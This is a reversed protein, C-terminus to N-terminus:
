PAAPGGADAYFRMGDFEVTGKQPLGQVIIMMKDIRGGNPMKQTHQWESAESKFNTQDLRFSVTTPQKAPAVAAPPTEHMKWDSAAGFAVSVQLTAATPNVVTLDMRKAKSLDMNQLLMIALKKDEGGECVVEVLRGRGQVSKVELKGPRSWSTDVAWGSLAEVGDATPPLEVSWLAPATVIRFPVAQAYRVVTEKGVTMTGTLIVNQTFGAPLRGARLIVTGENKDKPITGGRVTFGKPPADAGLKVQGTVGEARAAKVVVEAEGNQQIEVVKDPEVETSLTFASPKLVALLFEDTPVRHRPSFAQMVDEAPTAQHTVTQGAIEATGRVSPTLIGPQLDPPATLTFRVEGEKAPIVAGRTVFGKPLGDLSLKIEGDFGDTRVVDGILVATDGPAICPNDPLVRLTFDHRPAAISLRYAYAEGGKGQIDCLKVCYEGDAPFTHLLYSDAHHTITQRSGDITDDNRALETGKADFVAIVSDLPSELRRACVDIVLTEKAKAPFVFCDVDGPKGIRGNIVTGPKVKNAKEPSDNDETESTEELDDAGFPPVRTVLGHCTVAVHRFPPADAPLKVDLSEKDLNVGTLRVSTTTNRTAGLPYVDTVYPLVGVNLRYVFDERGRFLADKIEVLYEGDKPLRHILVPDPNFRFDDVYALERGDADYLTLVAQLWGPVADAIFPLLRRGFVECVITQGAKGTFRYVDADAGFLQGNVVTPVSALRQAQTTTSNPEVELTEALQGVVFRYRNSVGGPSILRLDRVGPTADPAITISIRVTETEEKKKGSPPPKRAPDPKPEVPEESVLVKATVGEGSVHVATATKLHLGTVATEGTKGQQGGAPFLFNIHPAPEAAAPRSALTTVVAAISVVLVAVCARFRIDQRM